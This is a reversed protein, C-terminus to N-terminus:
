CLHSFTCNQRNYNDDEQQVYSMLLACHLSDFSSFFGSFNLFHSGLTERNYFLHFNFSIQCDFDRVKFKLFLQFAFRVMMAIHHLVIVVMILAFAQLSLVDVQLWIKFLVRVQEQVEFVHLKGCTQFAM